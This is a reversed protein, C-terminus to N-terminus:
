VTTLAQRCRNCSRLSKGDATKIMQVRATKGCSPCVVMLKDLLIPATYQIRSGAKGQASGKRLHKFRLNVGEVVALGAKPFVQTIKGQRGRDRGSLVRVLDNKKLRLKTTMGLIDVKSM